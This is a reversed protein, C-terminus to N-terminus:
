YKENHKEFIYKFYDQIDSIFYSGEPLGFEDSWTAATIQFKNNNCSKKMNKWTGYISVNSLTISKEGSRLDLKVTLKLISVHYKSTRSNESIM